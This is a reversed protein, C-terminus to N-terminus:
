KGNQEGKIPLVNGNAKQEFAAELKLTAKRKEDPMLHAYRKTMEFSKHGLLERITLLSEGQLALWSAYTHRLSHFTIKQRPDTIGNNFGLSKVIEFFTRSVHAIKGKHLKDVFIYGEPEKPIRRKLIDKVQKSMYAKRSENNKPNMITIIGNELDIDQSKLDAIEGFRLGCHLSVVAMDHVTSSKEKLAQLLTQAEDFSLFRERQNQLTPLKVGKIPNEGRYFGWVIAKNFIQRMLVLCHKITAPSLDKKNLDSKLKELAFPSIENLRQGKFFPTLHTKIRSEDAQWTKNEKAWEMYKKVMDEFLPAKVKKKPLEEEHRIARIREARVQAALAATYGESKLGAKEFVKKGADKDKYTFYFAVDPKGKHLREMKRQYVGVHGKVRILKKEM